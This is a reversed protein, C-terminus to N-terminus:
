NGQAEVATIIAVDVMDQVSCGRSLDNVPMRLGQLIPGVAHAKALREVLKYAINGANLDPFILVNADGQIPFGACKKQAVEPVLAADVQIEGDIVLEPKRYKAIKTAEIIKDVLAHRASGHTSFSLFAIKPEVGFKKATEATDLGIEALDKADPDIITSCDAFFMLRGDSPWIMLFLGSVKHFTEKTGIIEFSPVFPKTESNLGSVMGDAHKMRMMMAGFYHPLLMKEKAQESTVGKGKRLYLYEDIYKQLNDDFKPDRVEVGSLNLGLEGSRRDIAPRDGILYPVCIRERLLAEAARLTKEEYAEPFVIRQPNARAKEKLNDLITRM